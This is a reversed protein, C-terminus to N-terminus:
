DDDFVLGCDGDAIARLDSETNVNRLRRDVDFSVATTPIAVTRLSSLLLTVRRRDAALLSRAATLTPATRYCGCLPQRRGDAAEFVVAEAHDHARLTGFVRDDVLPFDCGVVFTRPSAAAALGDRIGGLPGFADDDVVITPDYGHTSLAAQLRETQSSRCSVVLEECRPTLADAVHAILPTGDLAAVAKDGAAFRTSHGGALILGSSM